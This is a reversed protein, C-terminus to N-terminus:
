SCSFITKILERYGGIKSSKKLQPSVGLGGAPLIRCRKKLLRMAIKGCSEDFRLSKTLKINKAYGPHM